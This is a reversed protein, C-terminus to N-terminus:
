RLFIGQALAGAGGYLGAFAVGFVLVPLALSLALAKELTGLAVGGQAPAPEVLWMAMFFKAYYALSVVGNLLGVVGFWLYLQSDHAGAYAFVERFLFFKGVFGGTPPLGTLGLLCTAMCVAFLPSRWGLGEFAEIDARGTQREVMAVLFFAGLTMFLYVAMYFLMATAGPGSTVAVGMLLYGAHAIASYALLRKANQQRLAAVNGVSMTAISMVVLVLRVHDNSSALTESLDRGGGTAAAVLRLAAGFGAGKGAVALFGAVSTPAGQYVDPCWFQFPFAAVKYALGAFVLVLAVLFGPSASAAGAVSQLSAWSQGPPTTLVSTGAFGYLLTLGYLMMGSAIAGFVVYKMAAESAQLDRRRFGALLYGGISLTEFGLYFLAMENASVTVCAGLVATLLLFFFETRSRSADGGLLASTAGILGAVLAVLRFAKALGDARLLRTVAAGEAAGQGLCLFLAGLLVVVAVAGSVYDRKARPTLLDLLLM